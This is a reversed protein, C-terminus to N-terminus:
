FRTIWLLWKNEIKEPIKKKSLETFRLKRVTVTGEWDEFALTEESTQYFHWSNQQWSFQACPDKEFSFTNKSFAHFPCISSFHIEVRSFNLSLFYIILKKFVKQANLLLCFSLFNKVTRPNLKSTTKNQTMKKSM